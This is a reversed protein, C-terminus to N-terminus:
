VQSFFFFLIMLFNSWDQVVCCLAKSRVNFLVQILSVERYSFALSVKSLNVNSDWFTTLKNERESMTKVKKGLLVICFPMPIFFLLVWLLVSLCLLTECMLVYSNSCWPVIKGCCYLDLFFLLSFIPYTQASTGFVPGSFRWDSRNPFGPLCQSVSPGYGCSECLILLKWPKFIEPFKSTRWSFM